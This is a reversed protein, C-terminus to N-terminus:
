ASANKIDVRGGTAGIVMMEPVAVRMGELRELQDTLRPKFDAPTLVYPKPLANGNSIVRLGDAGPMSIETVSLTNADARPRFEEVKGTVTVLTGVAADAPPEGRSGTFVFIGESSNPDADAKDDPTQIFFGTRYRATVVGTTRVTQGNLASENKNGQIESIATDRQADSCGTLLLLLFVFSFYKQDCLKM